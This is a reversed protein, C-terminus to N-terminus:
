LVLFYVTQLHTWADNLWSINCAPATFPNIFSVNESLTAHFAIELVQLSIHHAILRFTANFFQMVLKSWLQFSGASDQKIEKKLLNNKYWSFHTSTSQLHCLQNTNTTLPLMTCFQSQPHCLQNTDATLPLSQLLWEHM